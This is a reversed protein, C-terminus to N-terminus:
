PYLSHNGCTAADPSVGNVTVTGPGNQAVQLLATPAQAAAAALAVGLATLLALVVAVILRDTTNPHATTSRMADAGTADTSARACGRRLAGTRRGGGPHLGEGPEDARRGLTWGMVVRSSASISLRTSHCGNVCCRPQHSSSCSMM